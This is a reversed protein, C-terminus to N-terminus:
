AHTARRQAARPGRPTGAPTLAYPDALLRRLEPDRKAEDVINLMSAVTGGSAGGSISWVRLGIRHCPEVFQALARDQTFWVGLDSPVSDFGCAHVIRSGSATAVDQHADIM